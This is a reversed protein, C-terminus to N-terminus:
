MLRFTSFIMVNSYSKDTNNAIKLVILKSLTSYLNKMTVLLLVICYLELHVMCVTKSGDHHLVAYM